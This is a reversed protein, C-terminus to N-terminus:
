GNNQKKRKEEQDRKARQVVTKQLDPNQLLINVMKLVNNANKIKFENMLQDFKLATDSVEPADDIGEIEVESHPENSRNGVSAKPIGGSRIGAVIETLIAKTSTKDNLEQNESALEELEMSIAQLKGKYKRAKKKYKKASMELDWVKREEASQKDANVGSLGHHDTRFIHKNHHPSTGFFMRVEIQTTFAEVFQLYGDFESPIDTIPVVMEEEVLIAYRKGGQESRSSIDVIKKLAMVRELSYDAYRVHGRTSTKNDM